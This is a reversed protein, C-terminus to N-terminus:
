KVVTLRRTRAQEEARLRLFYVGSALDQVSLQTEHRGTEAQRAVSRVQRGLVDYLRLTAEGEAAAEPVAFHVTVRGRAPNPYTKKLQLEAPGGRAVRVPDTVEASGDLDVQRLRYALTDAAYPLDEDVFRYTLAESASGGEAKSERFGVAQWKAGSPDAAKRQVEFGANGTESATQWRLRM